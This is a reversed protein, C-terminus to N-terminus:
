GEGEEFEVSDLVKINSELTVVYGCGMCPGGNQYPYHKPHKENPKFDFTYWGCKRCILKQYQM